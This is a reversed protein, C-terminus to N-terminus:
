PRFPTFLRAAAGASNLWFRLQPSLEGLRNEMASVNRSGSLRYEAELANAAKLRSEAPQDINRIELGRMTQLMTARVLEQEMLVKAGEVSNRETQSQKLRLDALNQDKAVENATRANELSQQLAKAQMASSIGKGVSDEVRSLAGAPSSAPRDYALAPNLGAAKYDAVSRQASTSSMREQFEMQERALRKNTENSSRQGLYGAVGAGASLLGAILAPIV